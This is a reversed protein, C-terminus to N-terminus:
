HAAGGIAKAPVGAVTLGDAIDNVVAAGAGVTVRTGIRIRPRVSAGAGVLSFAGVSVGGALTAGPAIHSCAGLQNHHEVIAGSNVIVGDALTALANVVALPGVFVGAGLQASPSVVASPHLISALAHGGARLKEILRQRATCDGVAVIVSAHRPTDTTTRWMPRGALTAGPGANDDIFGIVQWGSAVAADAVVLGHGGAGYIVLQHSKEAGPTTM